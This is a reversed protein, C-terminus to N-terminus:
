IVILQSFPVMVSQLTLEMESSVLKTFNTKSMSLAVMVGSPKPACPLKLRTVEVTAIVNCPALFPDQPTLPKDPIDPSDPIDPKDPTFPEQPIEPTDPKFPIVPDQPCVPRDPNFPEQPNLPSVPSMPIVPGHPPLPSSPILPHVVKGNVKSSLM